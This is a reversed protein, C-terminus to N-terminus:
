FEVREGTGDKDFSGLGSIREHDLGHRNAFDLANVRCLSRDPGDRVLAEIADVVPPEIAQRLLMFLAVAEDTM